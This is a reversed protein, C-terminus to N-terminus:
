GAKQGKQLTEIERMHHEITPLTRRAFSKIAPDSGESEYSKFLQIDDRHDDAMIEIFRADFDKGSAAKLANIKRMMEDPMQPNAPVEIASESAATKKLDEGAKTHDAILRNALAKVAPNKTKEQAIRASQLEFQTGDAVKTVFDQASMPAAVMRGTSMRSQAAAPLISLAGATLALASIRGIHKM